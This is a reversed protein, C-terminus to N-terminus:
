AQRKYVDLHTYSVARLGLGLLALTWGPHAEANRAAMQSVGELAGTRVLAGVIMFMAAITWPANNSLVDPVATMPLIGLVLMVVAGGMAVVEVPYTERVFMVLMGCLILLAIIAQATQSLDLGLM